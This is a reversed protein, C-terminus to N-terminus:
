SLLEAFCQEFRIVILLQVLSPVPSPFSSTVSVIQILYLFVLRESVDLRLRHETIEAEAAALRQQCAAEAENAAKVRLELSHEDLAAKLREVQAWARCQAQQLEVVDRCSWWMEIKLYLANCLDLVSPRVTCVDVRVHFLSLVRAEIM